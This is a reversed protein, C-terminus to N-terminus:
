EEAIMKNIINKLKSGFKKLGSEKKEDEEAAKRAAEAAEEDAKRAAEAAEEAKRREEEAAQKEAETLVIGSGIEYAKRPEKHIEATTTTPKPAGFLDGDANIEPGACNMNGKALIGLVTNM